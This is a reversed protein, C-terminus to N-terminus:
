RGRGEMEISQTPGRPIGASTGTNGAPNSRASLRANLPGNNGPRNGGARHLMPSSARHSGRSQGLLGTKQQAQQLTSNPVHAGSVRGPPQLALSSLADSSKHRRSLTNVLRVSNVFGGSFSSLRGAFSVRGSQGEQNGGEPGGAHHLLVGHHDHQDHDMHDSVCDTPVSGMVPDHAFSETVQHMSM